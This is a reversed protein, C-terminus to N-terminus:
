FTFRAAIQMIRPDSSLSSITGFTAATSIDKNPLGFNVTNFVNFIDWRLTAAMRPGIKIQRQFTMDFNQFGPGTLRNRLENGFTGSTVAQFAATNFWQDVTKPGETDGSANPLGTMSTGVNNGGETVTFPHGTHATYIGSWPGDV